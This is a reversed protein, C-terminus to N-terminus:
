GAGILLVFDDIEVTVESGGHGIDLRLEDAEITTILAGERETWDTGVLTFGAFAQTLNEETEGNSLYADVTPAGSGEITRSWGRLTLVTGIPLPEAFTLSQRLSSYSPDFRVRAAALGGHPSESVRVMETGASPSWPPASEGSWLEFDGNVLLNGSPAGTGGSSEGDEATGDGEATGDVADFSSKCAASAVLTILASALM